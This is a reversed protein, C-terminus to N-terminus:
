TANGIVKSTIGLLIIICKEMATNSTMKLIEKFYAEVKLFQKVKEKKKVKNGNVKMPQMMLKIPEM